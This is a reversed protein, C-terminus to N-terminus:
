FRRGAPGGMALTGIVKSDAVLPVAVIPHLSVTDLIAGPYRTPGNWAVPTGSQAVQGVVGQGMQVTALAELSVAPLGQAVALALAGTAEDRLHIAGWNTGTVECLKALTQRLVEDLHQNSGIITAVANLGELEKTRAAVRQVMQDFSASLIGIEDKGPLGVRQSFDGKGVARTVGVFHRIPKVILLHVFGIAALIAAM